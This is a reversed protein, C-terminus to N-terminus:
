LDSMIRLNTLVSSGAANIPFQSLEILPFGDDNGLHALIRHTGDRCAQLGV